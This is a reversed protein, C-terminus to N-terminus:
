KSNLQVKYGVFNYLPSGGFNAAVVFCEASSQYNITVGNADVWSLPPGQVPYVLMAEHAGGPDVTVQQFGQGPLARLFGVYLTNTEVTGTNPLTCATISKVSGVFDPYSEVLEKVYEKSLYNM